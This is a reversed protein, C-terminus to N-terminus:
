FSFFLFSSLVFLVFVFLVFVFLCSVIFYYLYFCDFFLCIACLCVFLSRQLSGHQREAVVYCGTFHTFNPTLHTLSTVSIHVWGFIRDESVVFCAYICIYAYICINDGRQRGIVKAGGEYWRRVM